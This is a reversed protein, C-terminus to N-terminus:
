VRAAPATASDLQISQRALRVHAAIQEGDRVVLRDAPEYGPEDLQSHFEAATPGHFVSVLLRHIASHDGTKAHALRLAAVPPPPLLLPRNQTVLKRSSSRRAVPLVTRTAM